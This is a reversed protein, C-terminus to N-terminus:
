RRGAPCGVTASLRVPDPPARSTSASCAAGAGAPPQGAPGRAARARQVRVAGRRQAREPLLPQGLGPDSRPGAGARVPRRRLPRHRRRRGAGPVRVARRGHRLPVAQREPLAAHAASAAVDAWSHVPADFSLRELAPGLAAQTEPTLAADEVVAQPFADVVRAYLAPDVPNEVPTGTYFAKFDVVRVSGTAAIVGLVEDDWDPTPDLKFELQPYLALWPRIDLRTSVVFRVPHYTLDLAAGLSLGAQRLALDLAASEFAWRRHDYSASM